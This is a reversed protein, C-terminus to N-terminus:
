SIELKKDVPERQLKNKTKQSNADKVPLTQLMRQTTFGRVTGFVGWVPMGGQVPSLLCRILTSGVVESLQSFSPSLGLGLCM